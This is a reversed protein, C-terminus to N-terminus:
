MRLHSYTCRDGDDPGFPVGPLPTGARTTSVGSVPRLSRSLLHPAAAGRGAHRRDARSGVITSCRSWARTIPSSAASRSPRPARRRAGADGRRRGRGIRRARDGRAQGRQRRPAPRPGLMECAARVPGPIPITEEDLEIGVGSAAAIENLASALGGRTPDRLVHADPCSPWRDRRGARQAAAHRLRDGGRVGPGRPREHDGRRAPRDPRVPHGRRRRRRPRGRRSVGDACSGSARRHQRVARGRSRSRGGEHRRDRDPRGGQGGGAGGVRHDRAARRDATGGRHRLGALAGAPQAGMMALDNVTGNVALEGIDGGPFELPSVVFSDTTFALRAGAVDVVAADNLPGGRAVGAAGGLRRAGISTACSRRRSSAAPVTAWCSARENRSRRRAPRRSPIRRPNPDRGRATMTGARRSLRGATGIRPVTAAPRATPAALGRGAAHYAACVGEASVM